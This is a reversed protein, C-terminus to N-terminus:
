YSNKVTLLVSPELQHSSQRPQQDQSNQQTSNLYPKLDVQAWMMLTRIQAVIWDLPIFVDEKSYETNIM